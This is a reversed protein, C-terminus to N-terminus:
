PAAMSGQPIHCEVQETLDGLLAPFAEELQLSIATLQTDRWELFELQAAIASFSM